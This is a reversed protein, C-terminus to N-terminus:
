EDEGHIIMKLTSKNGRIKKVIETIQQYHTRDKGAISESIIVIFKWCLLYQDIYFLLM